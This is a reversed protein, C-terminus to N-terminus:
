IISNILAFVQEVTQSRVEDRNGSLRLEHFECGNKTCCAIYILGVPKAATGGGPGAIGTSSVGIDAGSKEMVGKAMECATEPSVAGFKELTEKKVGLNKIKAENSYTIYGEGYIESVGAFDTITKAILGGTCSEATAISINNKILKKITKEIM